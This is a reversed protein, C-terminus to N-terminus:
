WNVHKCLDLYKLSELLFLMGHSALGDSTCDTYLPTRRQRPGWTGRESHERQWYRCVPRSFCNMLLVLSQHTSILFIQTLTDVLNHNDWSIKVRCNLWNERRKKILVCNHTHYWSFWTIEDNLIQFFLYKDFQNNNRSKGEFHPHNTIETSAKLAEVWCVCYTKLAWGNGPAFVSCSVIIIINFLSASWFVMLAPTIPSSSAPKCQDCDHGSSSASAIYDQYM